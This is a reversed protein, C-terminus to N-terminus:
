PGPGVIGGRTHRGGRSMTAEIADAEQQPSAVGTTTNLQKLARAAPPAADAVPLSLLLRKPTQGKPIVNRDVGSVDNYMKSGVGDSSSKSTRAVDNKQRKLGASAPAALLLLILPVVPFLLPRAAAAM